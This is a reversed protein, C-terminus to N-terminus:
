DSRHPSGTDPSNAECASTSNPSFGSERGNGTLNPANGEPVTTHGSLGFFDGSSEKSNTSAEFLLSPPQVSDRSRTVRSCAPGVWSALVGGVQILLV